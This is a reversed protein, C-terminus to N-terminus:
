IVGGGGAEKGMDQLTVPFPPQSALATSTPATPPLFLVGSATSVHILTEPPPFCLLVVWPQLPPLLYPGLKDQLWLLTSSPPFSPPLFLFGRIPEIPQPPAAKRPLSAGLLLLIWASPPPQLPSAKSSSFFKKPLTQQDREKEEVQRRAPPQAADHGGEMGMLHGRRRGMGLDDEVGHVLVLGPQVDHLRVLVVAEAGLVGGEAGVDEGLGGEDGDGGVLVVLHPRAFWTEEEERGGAVVGKSARQDGEEGSGEKREM